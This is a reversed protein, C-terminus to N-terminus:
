VSPGRTVHAPLGRAIPRTSKPRGQALAAACEHLLALPRPLDAADIQGVDLQCGAHRRPPDVAVDNELQDPGPLGDRARLEGPLRAQLAAGDRLDDLLKELLFPHALATRGNRLAATPRRQDAEILTEDGQGDVDMRAVRRDGHHIEIAPQDGAGHRWQAAVRTGRRVQDQIGHRSHFGAQSAHGDFANADAKRPPYIRAGILEEEGRVQVPAVEIELTRDLPPHLQRHVNGVGRDGAQQRLEGKVAIFAVPVGDEDGSGFSDAIKALPLMM